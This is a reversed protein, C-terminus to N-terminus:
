WSSLYMKKNDIHVSFSMDAGFTVVNKGWSGDSWLLQLLAGSGIGYGIYRYKDPDANKPLRVAGLLCNGLRFDTNLDRSCTDLKYSIYLHVVNGHIFSVSDQKLCIGKFRIKGKGYSCIIELDFSNGTTSPPTISEKPM